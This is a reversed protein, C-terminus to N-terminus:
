LTRKRGDSCKKSTACGNRAGSKGFLVSTREDQGDGGDTGSKQESPYGVLPSTRVSNIRTLM